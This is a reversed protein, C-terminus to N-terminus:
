ISKAAMSRCPVSTKCSDPCSHLWNALMTNEYFPYVHTPQDGGNKYSISNVIDKGRALKVHDDRPPWPLTVEAKKKAAAVTYAAEAGVVASM